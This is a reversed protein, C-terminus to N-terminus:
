YDLVIPRPGDPPPDRYAQRNRTWEAMAWRGFSRDWREPSDAKGMNISRFNAVLRPAVAAPIGGGMALNDLQPKSPQWDPTIEVSGPRPTPPEQPPTDPPQRTVGNRRVEAEEEEEEEQRSKTVVRSTVRSTVEDRQLAEAERKAKQRARYDAQRQAASKAGRELSQYREFNAIRLETGNVTLYGVELLFVVAERIAQLESEHPGLVRLLDDVPSTSRRFIVGDTDDPLRLLHDRVARATLSWLRDETSEHRFLKRWVRDDGAM